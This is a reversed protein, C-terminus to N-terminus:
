STKEQKAKEDAPLNNNQAEPLAPNNNSGTLSKRFNNIGRGLADGLSPLRTSGFLILVVLFVLILEGSSLFAFWM